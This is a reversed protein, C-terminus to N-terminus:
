FDKLSEFRGVKLGEVVEGAKDFRSTSFGLFVQLMEDRQLFRTFLQGFGRRHFNRVNQGVNEVDNSGNPSTRVVVVLRFSEDREEFLYSVM